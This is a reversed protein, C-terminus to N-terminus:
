TERLIVGGPITFGARAPIIRLMCAETETEPHLGRALPSSGIAPCDLSTPIM